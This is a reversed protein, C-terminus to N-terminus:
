LLQIGWAIINKNTIKYINCLDMQNNKISFISNIDFSYNHNLLDLFKTSLNNVLTEILINGTKNPPYELSIQYKSLEASYKINSVFKITEYSNDQKISNFSVDKQLYFGIIINVIDPSLISVFAKYIYDLPINSTYAKIKYLRTTFKYINKSYYIIASVSYFKDINKPKLLIHRYYNKNELIINGNELIM